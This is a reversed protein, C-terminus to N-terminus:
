KAFLHTRPQFLILHTWVLQRFCSLVLGSCGFMWWPVGIGDLSGEPEAPDWIPPNFSIMSPIDTIRVKHSPATVM